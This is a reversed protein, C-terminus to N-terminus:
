VSASLSGATGFRVRQLATQLAAVPGLPLGPISNIREDSLALAMDSLAMRRSGRFTDGEVYALLKTTAPTSLPPSISQPLLRCGYRACVDSHCHSTTKM